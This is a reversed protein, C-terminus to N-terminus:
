HPAMHRYATNHPGFSLHKSDGSIVSPVTCALHFECDVCNHVVLKRCAVTISVRECNSVVLAGAVAGIVVECDACAMVTGHQYPALLYLSTGMCAKLTLHPLYLTRRDTALETATYDISGTGRAHSADDEGSGDGGESITDLFAFGGHDLGDTEIDDDGTSMADTASASLADGEVSMSSSSKVLTPPPGPGVAAGGNDNSNKNNNGGSGQSGDVNMKSSNKDATGGRRLPSTTVSYILTSTRGSVLTPQSMSLSRVSSVLRLPVQQDHQQYAGPRLLSPPHSNDTLMAAEDTSGVVSSSNIGGDEGSAGGHLSSVPTLGNILLVPASNIGESSPAGSHYASPSNLRALSGPSLAQGQAENSVVASPYQVENHGLHSEIWEAVEFYPVKHDYSASPLPISGEFSTSMGL